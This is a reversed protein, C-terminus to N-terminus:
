PKNERSTPRSLSIIQHNTKPLSRGPFLWKPNKLKDPNQQTIKRDVATCVATYNEFYDIEYHVESYHRFFFSYFCIRSVKKQSILCAQHEPGNFDVSAFPNTM